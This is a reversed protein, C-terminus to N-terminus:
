NNVVNVAVILAVVAAWWHSWPTTDLFGASAFGQEAAFAVWLAFVIWKM